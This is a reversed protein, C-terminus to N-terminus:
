FPLLDELLVPSLQFMYKSSLTSVDRNNFLLDSCTLQHLCRLLFRIHCRIDSAPCKSGGLKQNTYVWGSINLKYITKKRINIRVRRPIHKWTQKKEEKQWNLCKPLKTLGAKIHLMQAHSPTFIESWLEEHIKINTTM